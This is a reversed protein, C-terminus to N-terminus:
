SSRVGSDARAKIFDILALLGIVGPGCLPFLFFQSGAPPNVLKVSSGEPGPNLIRGSKYFTM